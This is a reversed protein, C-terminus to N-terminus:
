QRNYELKIQIGIPGGTRSRVSWPEMKMRVPAREGGVGTDVIVLAVALAFLRLLGAARTRHGQDNLDRFLIM